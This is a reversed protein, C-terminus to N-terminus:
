RADPVRHLTLVKVKDGIQRVGSRDLTAMVRLQPGDKGLRVLIYATYVDSRVTVLDSIRSFILDREEFDDVVGDTQTRKNNNLDPFGRHDENDLAYYRIDALNKSNGNTVSTLEGISMFGPVGARASYDDAIGSINLKDRYGIIAQALNPDFGEGTKQSVWPLQAIVYWPATNINIRGKVRTENAPQGHQNPDMVTLYQFLRQVSPNELNLKLQVDTDNLQIRDCPDPVEYYTSKKFVFGIEGINNFKQQFPQVLPVAPYFSSYTFHNSHGLTVSNVDQGGTDWLRKIRGEWNIDRHFSRTVDLPTISNAENVDTVVLWGPIIIDDGISDVIIDGGKDPVYRVLSIITGPGFIIDNPGIVKELSDPEKAWTKFKMVDGTPQIVVGNADLNDVRWYYMTNPDLPGPYYSTSNVNDLKLCPSNAEKVCTEDTGFYVDFKSPQVWTGDPQMAWGRDWSLVVTPDVGNADADPSDSFEVKSRLEAALNEWIRVYYRGGRESFVKDDIPLTITNNPDGPDGPKRIILKWDSFKEDGFQKRLEIAYSRNLIINCPDTVDKVTRCVLESIYICPREFGYFIGAGSDVTSVISDDDGYDRINAAAQAFERKLKDDSTLMCMTMVNNYLMNADCAKNVNVMKRGIPDIVRDMNYTTSIHRFDYYKYNVATAYDYTAHNPWNSDATPTLQANLTCPVSLGGDYVKDWDELNEIRSIFKDYHLIYRNRLKLEDSIDFPTYGTSNSYDWILGGGSDNRANDLHTLPATNKGRRSLEALNIQSQSRGDIKTSDTDNPNFSYATNVNLMGGNDIIRIAAYVQQGKHTQMGPVPVWRSDAVGDGDADAPGLYLIDNTKGDDKIRGVSDEPRIIIARLDTARVSDKAATDIDIWNATGAANNADIARLVGNGNAVRFVDSIQRWYYWDDTLTATGNDNVMPELNALWWDNDGAYDFYDRNCPDIGPVDRVLEDSIQAIVSEVALDLEKTDAISSTAMSGLRSQLLFLAGVMALLSTIVVVLILASGRRSKGATINRDSKM